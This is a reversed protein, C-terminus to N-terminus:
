AAIEGMKGGLATEDALFQSMSSRMIEIDAIARLAYDTVSKAPIGAKRDQAHFLRADSMVRRIDAPTFGESRAALMAHDIMDQGPLQFGVWRRFMSERVAESPLTTELWLEVRGSRVLADPILIPDMVTMMVCVKSASASEMGDLMSLLKRVVTAAYPIAFLNDADDIFLVSPAQRIAQEIISNVRAAFVHPPETPISGDILFFKGKMRHALARGISTKGTGPPGFLMVGRRAKVGMLRAEDPHEFPLILHKELTEAIAETGPLSAFTLAEVEGLRVTEHLVHKDMIEILRRTDDGEGVGANLLLRCAFIWQRPTLGGAHLQIIDCDIQSMRASGIVATGLAALDESQLVEPLSCVPVSADHRIIGASTPPLTSDDPEVGLYTRRGVLLLHHGLRKAKEILCTEVQTAWDWGLSRLYTLDDIVIFPHQEISESLLEMLRERWQNAPNPLALKLYDALTFRRGGRRRVLESAIWSKGVGAGGELQVCGVQDLERELLEFTARQGPLLTLNEDQRMISIECESNAALM